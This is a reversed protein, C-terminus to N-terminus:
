LRFCFRLYELGAVKNGEETLPVVLVVLATRGSGYCDIEVHEFRSRVRSEPVLGRSLSLLRRNCPRPSAPSKMRRTLEYTQKSSLCAAIINGGGKM